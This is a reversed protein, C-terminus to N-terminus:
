WGQLLFNSLVFLNETREIKDDVSFIMLFENTVISYAICGHARQNILVLHVFDRVSLMEATTLIMM